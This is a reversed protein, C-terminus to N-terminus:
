HIGRAPRCGIVAQRTSKEYRSRSASRSSAAPELYCGGRVVALHVNKPYTRLGDDAGPKQDYARDVYSDRCWEFVNGIVDHLGFPNAAFRGAPAHAAHGDDWNEILKHQGVRQLERDALNGARKLTSKDNGTWWVSQTGGRAAYEWQAETPVNLGCRALRKRCDHWSISEVPHSLTFPRDPPKFRSPELGGTLRRWQAQTLEYKSLFFPRLTVAHTPQEEPSPDGLSRPSGMRYSGGPLLVLVIGTRSTIEWQGTAGREPPEGSLQHAFEWLGSRPDPGLPLLGEQPRLTLGAYKPEQQISEIARAWSDPNHQNRRGAAIKEWEAVKEIGPLFRDLDEVLKRVVQLQWRQARSLNNSQSLRQAVSRHHPLRSEMTRADRLWRHLQPRKWSQPGLDIRQENLEALLQIDAMSEFDRVRNSLRQERDLVKKRAEDAETTKQEAIKLQSNIGYLAGVVSILIGAVALVIPKNRRAWKGLVQWSSYEVAQLVRGDLYAQIDAQMAAVTDYRDKPKAQLARIAAAELEWPIGREPTRLRPPEFRGLQVRDLIDWVCEGDYLRKLTLMEYLIAGLSYIDSRRDLKHIEGRAQEPPMYSPTGIIVGDLTKLPEQSDTEQLPESAPGHSVDITCGSEALDPQGVVRALGWDMVQVEGFQGVMINAPKLDRHIVGRAHAFAIADCIKLFIGLMKSLSSRRLVSIDDIRWIGSSRARKDRHLMTGEDAREAVLLAELDDGDVRKMTFYVQEDPTVGLEHMPVINPHELQGTIQAERVFKALTQPSTQGKMVKAAMERGIETDRVRLIQGMNGEGLLGTVQYRGLTEVSPPPEPDLSLTLDDQTIAERITKHADHESPM